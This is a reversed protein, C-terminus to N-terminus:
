TLREIVVPAAVVDQNSGQKEDYPHTGIPLSTPHSWVVM